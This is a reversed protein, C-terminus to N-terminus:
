EGARVAANGTSRRFTNPLRFCITPCIRAFRLRSPVAFTVSNKAPLRTARANLAAKRTSRKTQRVLEIKPNSKRRLTPARVRVTGHKPETAVRQVSVTRVGTAGRARRVFKRRHLVNSVDTRVFVLRGNRQLRSSKGSRDIEGTKANTRM